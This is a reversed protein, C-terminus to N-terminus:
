IKRSKKLCIWPWYKSLAAVAVESIKDSQNEAKITPNKEETRYRHKM